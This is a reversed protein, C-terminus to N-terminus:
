GRKRVVYTYSNRLQGTVLLPKTGKFGKRERAKLTSEALPAFGEGATLTGRVSAQAILGAKNLSKIYESQGGLISDAAGKAIIDACKDAVAEVGPILVPRAPINAVASGNEMLYAIQANNIPQEGKREDRDSPVGVLVQTSALARLSRM